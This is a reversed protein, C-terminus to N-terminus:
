DRHLLHEIMGFQNGAGSLARQHDAVHRKERILDAYFFGDPVCSAQQLGAGRGHFQFSASGHKVPDLRQGAKSNGHHPMEAHRGLGDM